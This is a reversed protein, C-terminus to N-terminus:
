GGWGSLDYCLTANGVGRVGIAQCVLVDGPNDGEPFFVRPYQFLGEPLGPLRALRTYRDVPFSLVRRWEGGEFRGM